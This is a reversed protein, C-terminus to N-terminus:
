EKCIWEGIREPGFLIVFEFFESVGLEIEGKEVRSVWAQTKGLERAVDAQTMDFLVRWCKLMKPLSRSKRQAQTVCGRTNM